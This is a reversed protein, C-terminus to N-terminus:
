FWRSEVKLENKRGTLSLERVVEIAKQLQNDQARDAPDTIEESLEVEVDPQIGVQHINNGNPTYYKSVTLKVASGDELQRVTQVIGKGFTTTGVLTGVEHDKVAGAFIEAASASEGNVLVVLPLDLPSEGDCTEESRNGYKDETYVILGEPLIKRLIDCVSSMLGGPNDRLDIILREMGQSELDSFADEYQEYTVETFKAIQIYGIQDELMEHSVSPIEVEKVSVEVDRDESEGERRITLTVHDESTKKIKETVESLEMGSTTEGNVALLLDGAQIGAQEAPGGEYCQVIVTEKDSNQSITVGIGM